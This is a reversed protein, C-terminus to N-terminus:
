NLFLGTQLFIILKRQAKDLYYPVKSYFIHGKNVVNSLSTLSYCVSGDDDDSWCPDKEHLHKSQQDDHQDLVPQPYM